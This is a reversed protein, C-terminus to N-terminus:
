LFICLRGFLSTCLVAVLYVFAISQMTFYHVIACDLCLFLATWEIFYLLGSSLIFCDVWYFM